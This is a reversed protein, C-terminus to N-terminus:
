VRNKKIHNIFFEIGEEFGTELDHPYDKMYYRRGIERQIEEYTPIDSEKLVIVNILEVDSLEGENVSGIEIIRELTALDPLIEPEDCIIFHSDWLSLYEGTSKRILTKM